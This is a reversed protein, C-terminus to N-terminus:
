SDGEANDTLTSMNKIIRTENEIEAKRSELAVLSEKLKTIQRQKKEGDARVTELQEQFPNLLEDNFRAKIRSIITEKSDSIVKLYSKAEFENEINSIWDKAKNANSDHSFLRGIMRGSAYIAGFAIVGIGDVINILMKGANGNEKNGISFISEDDDFNIERSVTKIFEKEDFDFDPPLLMLIEEADSFFENLTSKLMRKANDIIERCVRKLKRTTLAEYERQLPRQLRSKGHWLKWSDVIANMKRCSSEVEDEMDRSGKRIIEDFTLKLDDELGDIKRNIRRTVRSLKSEIEELEDDSSDRMKIEVKTKNIENLIESLLSNGRALIANIPKKFLIADKEREILQRIADILQVIHSKAHMEQQSSISFTKCTRDWAFSFSDNSTIKSMPLVSLLAMEASLPIPDTEQLIENLQDDGMIKSANAIEARVHNCIVEENDGEKYPIDYKNVGILVKGIGCEGVNKFLITRDTASFPQGAYILLLVVDAKKLFEKTREERSVIPDNFGPTDVINIGKLYEKPYYITVAKTISVYKGDAGVYEELKDFTDNQSKGLLDNLSSGLKSSKEVLEQAAQIKSKLVEDTDKDIVMKSTALQENWEEHTYFEAVLKKEPGYTIISLAATTPTVAAPLVDDEFVFANLFTSKGAKMQGIVGITLVDKELKSLYGAKEEANIWGIEEAKSILGNIKQKKEQIKEFFDQAM